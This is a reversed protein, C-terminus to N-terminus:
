LPTDTKSRLVERCDFQVGVGLKGHSNDVPQLRVVHGTCRWETAPKGTIEEPMKLLIEVESGIALPADTAFFASRESLNETHASLLVNPLSLKTSGPRSAQPERSRSIPVTGPDVYSNSRVPHITGNVSHPFSWLSNM